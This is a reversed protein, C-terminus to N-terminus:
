ELLQDYSVGASLDLFSGWTGGPEHCAMTCEANFIPQLDTEFDVMAVETESGSDSGSSSEGDTTDMTTSVTTANTMTGSTEDDDGAPCGPLALLGAVLAFMFRSSAHISPSALRHIM